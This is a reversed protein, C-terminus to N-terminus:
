ILDYVDKMFSLSGACVIIRDENKDNCLEIIANKISPARSVRCMYREAVKCMTESDVSRKNTNDFFVIKEAKTAILKIMQTYEKDRFISVLFICKREPFYDELTEILCQIGAINHAGDAIMIPHESVM